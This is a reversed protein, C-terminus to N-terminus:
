YQKTLIITFEHNKFTNQVSISSFYMSSDEKDLGHSYTYRVMKLSTKSISIKLECSPIGSIETPFKGTTFKLMGELTLVSIEVGNQTASFDSTKVDSLNTYLVFTIGSINEGTESDVCKIILKDYLIIYQPLYQGEYVAGPTVDYTFIQVWHWKYKSNEDYYVGIGTHTFSGNMAQKWHNQSNKWANVTDEASSSGSAIIETSYLWPIKKTDILESFYDGNPRYHGERELQDKARIEACENLYPVTYLKNLGLKEREQNILYAVNNAMKKLREDLSKKTWVVANNRYVKMIETSQGLADTKIIREINKCNVKIPM